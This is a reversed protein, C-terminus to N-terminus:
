ILLHQRTGDCKFLVWPKDVGPKFVVAYWVQVMRTWPMMSLQLYVEVLEIVADRRRAARRVAPVLLRDRQIPGRAQVLAVQERLKDETATALAGTSPTTAWTQQTQSDSISKIGDVLMKKQHSHDGELGLYQCLRVFAGYEELHINVQSEEAM